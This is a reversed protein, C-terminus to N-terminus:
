VLHSESASEDPSELESCYERTFDALGFRSELRELALLIVLKLGLILHTLNKYMSVNTVLKFIRCSWAM